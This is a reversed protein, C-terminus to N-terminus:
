CYNTNGLIFTYINSFSKIFHEFPVDRGIFECEIEFTDNNNAADNISYGTKVVTLDLRWLSSITFSYRNKMRIINNTGYPNEKTIKKLPTIKNTKVEESLVLKFLLDNYLKGKSTSIFYKLQQKTENVISNNIYIDQISSYSSRNKSKGNNEIIDITTENQLEYNKILFSYLYMFTFADVSLTKKGHKFIRCELENSYEFKSYVEKISKIEQKNFFIGKNFTSILILESKSLVVLLNKLNTDNGSLVNLYKKLVDLEFPDHIFNWVSMVSSLGNAEKNPRSRLIKFQNNNYNFEAVDGDKFFDKEKKTPKISAPEGSGPITFPYGARTLLEWKSESVIKIRFDITQDELPKWKFQVNNYKNWPGFPIYNTDFPQLILGDAKLKTTRKENTKNTIYSYINNTELITSISYWKKASVQINNNFSNLYDKLVTNLLYKISDYRKYYDMLIYEENQAFLLDFILFEYTNNTFVMEGDMLFPPVGTIRSLREGSTNVFIYFNLLRDIFFIEGWSSLFMLYREGDVKLTIHYSYNNNADTRLLEKFCGNELTVPMGGIFQRNNAPQKTLKLYDDLIYLYEQNNVSSDLFVPIQIFTYDM